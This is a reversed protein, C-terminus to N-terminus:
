GGSLAEAAKPLRPRIKGLDQGLDELVSREVEVKAAILRKLILFERPNNVCAAGVVRGGDRQILTFRGQGPDGRVLEEGQCPLGASQVHFSFQDSWFSPIEAYPPAAPDLLSCAVSEGQKVANMWTEIRAFHGSVPHYQRTVDGIAYVGASTTQGRGDVFIGGDCAIGAARAIADNANVGIGVVVIDAKLRTSDNLLLYDEPSGVVYRQLLLEVGNDRHLSEILASLGPSACRNMVKPQAEVFCVQVGLARATAALELGIVSGGVVVLRSNRTLHRRINRADDVTRLTFVPMSAQELTPLSRPRAGTAIVLAGYDLLTGDSLHVQRKATDISSGCIGYLWDIDGVAGIDIRIKEADGDNLFSKSLPPRQYPREREECVMTISDDYGKLRLTTTFSV